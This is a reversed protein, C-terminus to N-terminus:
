GRGPLYQTSIMYLVSQTDIMDEVPLRRDQFERRLYTCRGRYDTLLSGLTRTDLGDKRDYLWSLAKGGFSPRYFPHGAPDALFLFYSAVSARTGQGGFAKRQVAGLSDLAPDLRSWFADANAEGPTTAWLDQLAARMVEPRANAMGNLGDVIQWGLLNLDKQPQVNVRGDAGDQVFAQLVMHVSAAGQVKYARENRSLHELQEDERMWDCVANLRQQFTMTVDPCPQERLGRVRRELLFPAAPDGGGGGM